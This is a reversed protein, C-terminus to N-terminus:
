RKRKSPFSCQPLSTATPGTRSHLTYFSFNASIFSKCTQRVGGEPGGNWRTCIVLSSAVETVFPSRHHNVDRLTTRKKKQKKKITRRPLAECQIKYEDVSSRQGWIGTKGRGGQGEEAEVCLEGRTIARWASGAFFRQKRVRRETVFFLRYHNVDRLTTRVDVVM